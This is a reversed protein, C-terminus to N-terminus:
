EEFDEQARNVWHWLLATILTGLLSKVLLGPIYKRMEMIPLGEEGVLSSMWAWGLLLVLLQCVTFLFFARALSKDFGKEAMWGAMGAALVFGGLFGGSKGAMYEWGTGEGSFVPIGAMGMLLYVMVSWMGLRPGYLVGAMVVALTQLTFPLETGPLSFKVQAALYVLLSTELATYLMPPVGAQKIQSLPWDGLLSRNEM